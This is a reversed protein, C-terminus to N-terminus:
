VDLNKVELAHEEIFARRQEVNEGMLIAFLQDAESATDWNVRLLTRKAPDMTTEWLQEPDMEGLGKFRKVEMGKRGIEHLASLISPVNPANVVNEQGDNGPVVWSFRTTLLAGTVDEQQRLTYDQIEIDFQALQNILSTLEASEHMQRWAVAPPGVEVSSSGNRKGNAADASAAEEVSQEAQREATLRAAAADAQTQAQEETWCFAPGDPLNVCYGPLNNLGSPDALRQELLRAFPVGRREVIKVLERLRILLTVAQRADTGDLRRVEQGNDDRIVLTAQALAQDTLAEELRRENLVYQTHKGRTIQYLPPQAIYIAGRRILDGMQRFFFTLLLTRIHSGDVDADTMIIIRGYRLDAVNLEPGIGCRLAQILIRIEEFELMKEIRAKEVNLIKGRLPLIAQYEPDRGGKASGGASDGEVIFLESRGVDSTTCDALKSPLGGGELASKRRTLERAKRAAERAQAAIVGKQCIRKAEAPHEELWAAFMDGFMQSVFSEADESLLREKPQNNFQPDPHKLSIVAVIGERLDDGSPTLDKMLGSNKGYANITRTLANKFGTLHTGGGFNYINNTFCLTHENYSDTYQLAIECSMRGDNKSLYIPPTVPTKTEALQQVYAAVGEPYRFMEDRPKGDQGVREDSLRISVGANLFALERLRRKLIEYDFETDPFITGDPKFTVKTGTRKDGPPLTGVVHLPKATRGREFSILHIRGERRVEVEMWESLANVCSIGVGHLGGSVKYASRDFKGGAHLVTMVIEVAPKGDFTPNEHQMPGVPIGGGDDIVAIAGDALVHVHCTTARGAMVEDIANDVAEWVLHHLAAKDTGGVYMGPRKRVADLGELVQIDSETYSNKAPAPAGNPEAAAPVEVGVPVPPTVTTAPSTSMRSSADM